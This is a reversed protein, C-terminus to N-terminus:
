KDWEKPYPFKLYKDGKILEPDIVGKNGTKKEWDLQAALKHRGEIFMDKWDSSDSVLDEIKTTKTRELFEEFGMAGRFNKGYIHLSDSKDCYRGVGIEIGCKDTLENAVLRQLETFGWANMVPIAWELKPFTAWMLLISNDEAIDKVKFACIGKKDMTSYDTIARVRTHSFEYEWPPDAYIIQYKKAPLKKLEQMCDGHILTIDSM